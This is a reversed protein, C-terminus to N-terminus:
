NKEIIKIAEIVEDTTADPCYRDRLEGLKTRNLSEITETGKELLYRFYDAIQASVSPHRIIKIM